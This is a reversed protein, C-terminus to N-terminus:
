TRFRSLAMPSSTLSGHGEPSMTSSPLASLPGHTSKRASM